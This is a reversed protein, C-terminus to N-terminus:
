VGLWDARRSLAESDADALDLEWTDPPAAAPTIQLELLQDDRFLHVAVAREPQLNMLLQQPNISCKYADVALLEDGSSLGARQAPSGETVAQVVASSPRLQLGLFSKSPNGSVRGGEDGSGKACRREARVAFLELLEALPLEETSRLWLDFPPPQAPCLETAIQELGREPVPLDDRGYRQWLTRMVDDLSHESHLRLHLDLCLAALGGKVYYSVTANGSNDDPQYFKTWAEFSSDALSHVLRGACRQVRTANKAIVDLYAPADIIGARRLFLDDYYSTVGEYHWLDRTYAEAALGSEAFARATIRKVNWLHFYEHSCLGLFNLYAPRLAEGEKLGPENAQPLAERSCILACSERHELGGYGSGVVNTLFLYQPMAPEGGFLKREQACILALDRCLREADCRQRGSLVVAHPLGDVEFAIRQFAAMEVPHDILTAYDVAAYRGFGAADLEAGPLSTAVKWNRSADAPPQLLLQYGGADANLAEYFLSSGNFFGRDADLYAKRVSPDFAHVQYEFELPQDTAAFRLSSKDLREFALPQGASHGRLGIVHKAFDRILYSGRLWAPLRLVQGQPDPQEIRGRVRFRHAEPREPIVQYEVALKM